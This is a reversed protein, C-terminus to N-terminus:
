GSSGSLYIPNSLAIYWTPKYIGIITLCPYGAVSGQTCLNQQPVYLLGPVVQGNNYYENLVYESGSYYVIPQLPAMKRVRIWDWSDMYNTRKWTYIYVGYVTQDTYKTSGSVFDTTTEFENILSGMYDEYEKVSVKTTTLYVSYASNFTTTTPMLTISIVRWENTPVGFREYCWYGPISIYRNVKCIDTIRSQSAIQVNASGSIGVNTVLAVRWVEGSADSFALVHWYEKTPNDSYKTRAEVTIGIGESALERLNAIPNKSRIASWTNTGEIQLLGSGIQYWMTYWSAGKYLPYFQPIQPGNVWKNTDLMTQKNFDNYFVFVQDGPVAGNQGAILILTVNQMSPMYPVKVWIYGDGKSYDTTCEGTITEYCFPVSPYSGSKITIPVGKLSSPLKIRVQYDTLTVINPNYVKIVAAMDGGSVGSLFENASGSYFWMIYDSLPNTMIGFSNAGNWKVFFWDYLTQSINSAGRGYTISSTV